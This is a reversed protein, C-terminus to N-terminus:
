TSVEAIGTDGIDDSWVAFQDIYGNFASGLTLDTASLDPLATPTLNATLATGDVAGNIFTSGHRSAIDFPVNVGTSYYGGATSVNDTVSNFEQFFAQGSILNGTDYFAEIGNTASALWAYHNVERTLNNDAYTMRGSMHISVSLPNIERVSINDIVCTTGIGFQGGVRILTDSAGAVLIFSKAGLSSPTPISVTAGAGLSVFPSGSTYGVMTLDVRYSKNASVEVSQTLFTNSTTAFNATGGSITVGTGKGWVSDTDFTGNTVLEDGIVVPTPWPLNAAPITLTEAARTATAGATPIYSSPVSGTELQAYTPNNKPAIILYDATATFTLWTRPLAGGLVEGEYAGYLELQSEAERTVTVTM